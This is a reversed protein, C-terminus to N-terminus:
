TGTDLRRAGRRASAGCASSCCASDLCVGFSEGPGRGLAEFPTFAVAFVPPYRFFDLPKYDAYLPQDAWWHATGGSLIPFISHNEPSVLTRICVAVALAIWLRYAWRM